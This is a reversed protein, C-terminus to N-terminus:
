RTQFEYPEVKTGELTYAAVGFRSNKLQARLTGTVWVADSISPLHIAATLKVFVIQNPPPPPVHICAGVYPVLFLERVMGDGTVDLPVVFGPLKVVKLNLASNVESSGTQMAAMRAEGLYDHIPPPPGSDADNHEGPPLLAEWDLTDAEGAKRPPTDLAPLPATAAPPEPPQKPLVAVVPFSLVLASIGATCVPHRSVLKARRRQSM